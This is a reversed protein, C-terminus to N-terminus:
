SKMSAREPCKIGEKKAVRRTAILILGYCRHLLIKPGKSYIILLFLNNGKFVPGLSISCRSWQAM